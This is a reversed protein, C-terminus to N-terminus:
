PGKVHDLAEPHQVLKLLRDRWVGDARAEALLLTVDGVIPEVREVGKVMHLAALTAAADDARLNGTLTVLYGAHRDTM